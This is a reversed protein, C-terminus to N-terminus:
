STSSVTTKRKLPVGQQEALLEIQTMVHDSFTDRAVRPPLDGCIQEFTFPAGFAVKVKCPKPLSANKPMARETGVIAVPVVPAGSHRALLSVGPTPPLLHDGPNRTGEIFLLVGKGQQLQELSGRIAGTDATGRHVPFAGVRRLLAALPKFRFLEAKAMYHLQRPCASGVLPPDLFSSHNPAIIVPGELPVHETGRIEMRFYLKGFGRVLSWALTYFWDNSKLM